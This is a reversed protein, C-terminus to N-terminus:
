KSENRKIIRNKIKNLMQPKMSLESALDSWYGRYYKSKNKQIEKIKKEIILTRQKKEKM